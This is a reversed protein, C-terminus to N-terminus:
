YFFFCSKLIFNMTKKGGTRIGFILLFYVIAQCKKSGRKWESKKGTDKQDELSNATIFIKRQAVHESACHYKQLVSATFKRTVIKIIQQMAIAHM